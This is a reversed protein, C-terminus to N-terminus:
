QLVNFGGSSNVCGCARACVRMCVGCWVCVMLVLPANNHESVHMLNTGGLGSGCSRLRFHFQTDGMCGLLM